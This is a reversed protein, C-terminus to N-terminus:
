LALFMPADEPPVAVDFADGTFHEFGLRRYFDQVYPKERAVTLVLRQMGQRRAEPLILETMMRGALGLKRFEPDVGVHSVFGTRTRGLRGLFATGVIQGSGSENRVAFLCAGQLLHLRLLYLVTMWRPTVKPFIAHDLCAVEGMEWFRVKRPLFGPPFSLCAPMVPQSIDVALASFVGALKEPVSKLRIILHSLRENWRHIQPQAEGLSSAIMSLAFTATISGFTGTVLWHAPSLTMFKM